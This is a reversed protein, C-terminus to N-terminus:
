WSHCYIHHHVAGATLHSATITLDSARSRYSCSRWRRDEETEDGGRRQRRLEGDEDDDDEDAGTSDRGCWSWWCAASRARSLTESWCTDWEHACFQFRTLARGWRFAPRGYYYNNNNIVGFCCFWVICYFVTFICYFTCFHIFVYNPRSDCRVVLFM